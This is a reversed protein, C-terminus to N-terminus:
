ADAEDDDTPDKGEHRIFVIVGVIVLLAMAFWTIAYQLHANRFHIRTLGGRPWRGPDSGADADVFYPAVHGLGRAKAIAAVDRSYWRNEKPRNSRLLTGGPESMRLLGTLMTIGGVEGSKRTSPDKRDDPVFGRNVLVTPGNKEVLPTLVWYDPGLDTSTYVLTEKDNLFHGTLRVHLYEDRAATINPWAGPGPAAVAIAHVRADVRAILALKWSRREVQWIGLAVFAAFLFVAACGMLIRGRTLGQRKGASEPM